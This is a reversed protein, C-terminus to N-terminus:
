GPCSQLSGTSPIQRSQPPSQKAKLLGTGPRLVCDPLLDHVTPTLHRILIPISMKCSSSTTILCTAALHVPLVHAQLTYLLTLCLPCQYHTTQSDKCPYHSIARFHHLIHSGLMEDSVHHASCSLCMGQQILPPAPQMSAIIWRFSSPSM